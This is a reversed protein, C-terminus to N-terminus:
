VRKETNGNDTLQLLYCPIIRDSAVIIALCVLPSVFHRRVFGVVARRRAMGYKGPSFGPSLKVSYYRSANSPRSEGSKPPPRIRLEPRSAFSVKGRAARVNRGGGIEPRTVLSVGQGRHLSHTEPCVIIM